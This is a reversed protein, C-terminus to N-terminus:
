ARVTRSETRMRKSFWRSLSASVSCRTRSRVATSSAALACLDAKRAVTLWSTRVGIFAMMPM